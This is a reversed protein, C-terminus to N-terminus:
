GRAAYRLRIDAAEIDAGAIFELRYDGRHARDTSRLALAEGDKPLPHSVGDYVVATAGAELAGATELLLDYGLPSNCFEAVTFAGDKEATIDSKCILPATVALRVSISTSSGSATPAEALTHTTVLLSAGFALWYATRQITIM